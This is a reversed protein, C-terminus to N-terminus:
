ISTRKGINKVLSRVFNWGSCGLGCIAGASLMIWMVTLFVSAVVVVIPIIVYMILYYAAVLILIGIVIQPM